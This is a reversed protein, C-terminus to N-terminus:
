DAEFALYGPFESLNSFRLVAGNNWATDEIVGLEEEKAEIQLIGTMERNDVDFWGIVSRNGLSEKLSAFVGEGIDDTLTIGLNALNEFDTKVALFGDEAEGQDTLHSSDAENLVEFSKKLM